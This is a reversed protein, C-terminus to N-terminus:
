LVAWSVNSPFSMEDCRLLRVVFCEHTVNQVVFDGWPPFSSHDRIPSFWPLTALFSWFSISNQGVPPKWIRWSTLELVHMGEELLAVPCFVGVLLLASVGLQKHGTADMQMEAELQGQSAHMRRSEESALRGLQPCGYGSRANEQDSETPVAWPGLDKSSNM